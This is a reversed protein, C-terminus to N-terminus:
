EKSEGKKVIALMRADSLFPVNLDIRQQLTLTADLDSIESEATQSKMAFWLGGDALLHHTVRCMRNLDAFARSIVGDFLAQPQFSEVRAQVIEVNNLGLHSKVQELFRTKKGNSDLLVFQTDPFYIALPIGPLGAGTGVDCLRKVSSLYPAVSLSDLLHKVVMDRDSRVATLNFPKNWKKLLTVYEKLAQENVREVGLVSIGEALVDKEASAM